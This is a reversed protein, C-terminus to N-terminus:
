TTGTLRPYNAVTLLENCDHVSSKYRTNLIKRYLIDQETYKLAFGALNLLEMSIDPFLQLGICVAIVTEKKHDQNKDNRMRQITKAAIQAKEALEENTIKRWDMLNILAPSFSRPLQALIQAAEKAENIEALMAAIEKPQDTLEFAFETLTKAVASQFLV